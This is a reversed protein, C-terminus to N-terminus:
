FHSVLSFQIVYLKYSTTTEPFQFLLLHYKWSAPQVCEWRRCTQAEGRELATNLSTVVVFSPFRGAANPGDAAWVSRQDGSLPLPTWSYIDVKFGWRDAEEVRQRGLSLSKWSCPCVWLSQFHKPFLQLKLLRSIRVILRNIPLFNPLNQLNEM